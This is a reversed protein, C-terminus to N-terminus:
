SFESDDRVHHLNVNLFTKTNEMFLRWLSGSERTRNMPGDGTGIEKERERVSLCHYVVDMQLSDRSKNQLIQLETINQSSHLICLEFTSLNGLICFPQGYQM